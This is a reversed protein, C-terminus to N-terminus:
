EVCAAADAANLMSRSAGDPRLYDSFEAALADVSNYANEGEATPDNHTYWIATEGSLGAGELVGGVFWEPENDDDPALVVAAAHSVTIGSQLHSNLSALAGDSITLCEATPAPPYTSLDPEDPLPPSGARCGALTVILLGAAITIRVM